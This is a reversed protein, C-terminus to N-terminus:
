ENSGKFKLGCSNVTGVYTRVVFAADVPPDLKSTCNVLEKIRTSPDMTTLLGPTEAVADPAISHLLQTFLVGDEFDKLFDEAFPLERM